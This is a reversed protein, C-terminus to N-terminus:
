VLRKAFEPRVDLRAELCLLASVHVVANHAVEHLRQQLLVVEDPFQLKLFSNLLKRTSSWLLNLRPRVIQREPIDM